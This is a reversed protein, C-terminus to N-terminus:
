VTDCHNLPLLLILLLLIHLIHSRLYMKNASSVLTNKDWLDRSWRISIIFESSIMIALQNLTFLNLKSFVLKMINEESLFLKAGDFGKIDIFYWYNLSSWRFKKPDNNIFVLSPPVMQWSDWIFYGFIYTYEKSDSM